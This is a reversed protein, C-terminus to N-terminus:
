GEIGATSRAGGFRGGGRLGLRGAESPPGAAVHAAVRARFGGLVSSETESGVDDADASARNRTREGGVVSARRDRTEEDRRTGGSGDRGDRSSRRERLSRIEARHASAASPPKRDAASRASSSRTSREAVSVRRELSPRGTGSRQRTRADRSPDEAIKEAASKMADRRERELRRSEVKSKVRVLNRRAREAAVARKAAAALDLTRSYDAPVAAAAAAEAMSLRARRNASSTPSDPEASYYGAPAPAPERDPADQEGLFEGVGGRRPGGRVGGPSGFPHGRGSFRASDDEGGLTPVRASRRTSRERAAGVVPAAFTPDPAARLAEWIERMTVSTEGDSSSPSSSSSADEAEFGPEFGGTKNKSKSKSKSGRRRRRRREPHLGLARADEELQSEALAESITGVDSAAADPDWAYRATRSRSGFSGFSRLSPTRGLTERARAASDNLWASFRAVRGGDGARGETAARRFVREGGVSNPQLRPFRERTSASASASATSTSATAAAGSPPAFIADSRGAELVTGRFFDRNGSKRLQRVVSVAPEAYPRLVNWVHNVPAFVRPYRAVVRTFEDYDMHRPCRADLDDIVRRYPAFVDRKARDGWYNPDQKRRNEDTADYRAESARIASLLEEKSFRGDGNLDFLRFAFRVRGFAGSLVLAALGVVFERFDITRNGDCDWIEVLRDLYVDDVLGFMRALEHADVKGNHDADADKFLKYARRLSGQTLLDVEGLQAVGLEDAAARVEDPDACLSSACPGM